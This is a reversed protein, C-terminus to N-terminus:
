NEIIVEVHPSSAKGALAKRVIECEKESLKNHFIFYSEDAYYRRTSKTLVMCNLEIASQLLFTAVPIWQEQYFFLKIEKLNNHLYPIPDEYMGGDPWPFQVELKKLLPFSKLLHPVLKMYDVNDIKFCIHFSLVSCFLLGQCSPLKNGLSYVGRVYLSKLKFAKAALSKLIVGAAHDQRGYYMYVNELSSLDSFSCEVPVCFVFEFTKLNGASLELERVDCMVIKLSSLRPLQDDICLKEPLNSHRLSLFELSSLSSLFRQWQAGELIVDCLDLSNLLNSLRFDNEFRVICSHLHLNKLLSFQSLVSGSIVHTVTYAHRTVKSLGNRCIFQLTLSQLGKNKAAFGIWQNVAAYNNDLCCSQLRFSVINQDKYIQLVQDVGNLYAQRYLECKFNQHYCSPMGSMIRWDLDLCRLSLSVKRWNKSLTAVKAVDRLSLYTIIHSLIDDPLESLRDNTAESLRDDTPLSLSAKDVLISCNKKSTDDVEKVFEDEEFDIERTSEPAQRLQKSSSGMEHGKCSNIRNGALKRRGIGYLAAVTILLFPVTIKLYNEM